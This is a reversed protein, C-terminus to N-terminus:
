NKALFDIENQTLIRKYIRIEDILGIFEGFDGCNGIELSTSSNVTPFINNISQTILIDNLHLSWKGNEFTYSKSKIKLLELQYGM